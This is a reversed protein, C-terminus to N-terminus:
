NLFIKTYTIAQELTMNKGSRWARDFVDMEIKERCSDIFHDLELQDVPALKIQNAEMIVSVAAFLRTAEVSRNRIALLSAFSVLCLLLVENSESDQATELAQIFYKLASAHNGQHLSVFGLGIRIKALAINLRIEELYPICAQYHAEAQDYEKLARGVHGLDRLVQYAMGKSGLNKYIVLCRQLQNQAHLFGGHKLALVGSDHIPLAQGWKDGTKQWLPIEKKIIKHVTTEDGEILHMLAYLNLAWAQWWTNGTKQFIEISERGLEFGRDDKLDTKLIVGLALKCQGQEQLTNGELDRWIDLSEQVCTKAEMPNLFGWGWASPTSVNFLIEARTATRGFGASAAYARGLYDYQLNFDGTLGWYWNLACTLKVGDEVLTPSNLSRELATTLNSMEAALKELWALQAPGRIEKDAQEALKLYYALHSQLFKEEEGSEVLRDQSYQRVTELMHYRSESSSVKKVYVLSHDVLDGLLNLVDEQRIEEDSGVAEAGELSWGGSFVSLRNLFLRAKKPLLSYSWEMSTHLTQHRRLAVQSGGSLLRFIDNLQDVIQESTMMRSRAAALELALPIGELRHCIRTVADRNATTLKFNQILSRARETFLRVAEFNRLASLSVPDSPDPFALSPVIYTTEGPLNMRIRSTALIHLRPCAKLLTESLSACGNILRECNDLLLLVNRDRLFDVLRQVGSRNFLDPLKLAELVAKAVQNPNIYAALEVWYVGGQYEDVLTEAVKLALRTKGIGGAGTLTVLRNNRVLKQLVITVEERGVFSSIMAPLNHSSRMMWEHRPRNPVQENNIIQAHIRQSKPAPAVELENRLVLELEQYQRLAAQRQGNLAYARMLAAHADENAQDIAIVKQLSDIAPLYEECNLNYDALMLLLDIYLQRLQERQQYFLDSPGDEPLLDGTYSVVAVQCIAATHSDIPGTHNLASKAAREFDEVDTRIGADARLVLYDDEYELRASPDLKALIPRLTYITQSLSHAAAKPSSDPWLLGVLKERHMRHHPELALLKIINRGKKLKIQDAALIQNGRELQFVGLLCCRLENFQAVAIKTKSKTGPLNQDKV